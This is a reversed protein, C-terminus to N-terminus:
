TSQVIGVVGFDTIDTGFSSNEVKYIPLNDIKDFIVPADAGVVENINELSRDYTSKLHNKSFYTCFTPACALFTSYDKTAATIYQEINAQTIRTNTLIRGM